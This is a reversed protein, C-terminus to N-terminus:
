DKNMVSLENLLQERSNEDALLAQIQARFAPLNGMPGKLAVLAERLELLKKMEPVQRAISDPSFDDLANIDMHVNLEEDPKNSLLNPVNFNLSIGAEAIVSNFNNKNISVTSREDLPTDDVKGTDGIILMNLPLEVESVEGNTKPTYRVNIREKPAVSGDSKNSSM